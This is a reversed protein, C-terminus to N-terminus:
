ELHADYDEMDRKTKNADAYYEICEESTFGIMLPVKVYKGDRVLEYMKETLFAEESKLEIVPGFYSGQMNSAHEAIDNFIHDFYFANSARDLDEPPVSLLYKLLEETTHNDTQFTENLLSAFAFATKRPERQLAWSGLHTGSQCIVGKFWGEAKPNLQLYAVSAAGSSHGFITVKEPDGGFLKINNHVWELALLSDKLGNNGSIVHDGTSLF